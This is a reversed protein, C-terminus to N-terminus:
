KLIFIARIIDTHETNLDHSEPLEEIMLVSELYPDFLTLMQESSRFDFVEYGMQAAKLHGFRVPVEIALVANSRAVRAIEAAVKGIDYSHELSHSSYVVDFMDGPFQMAHMDMVRIEPHESFLDIGTVDSFGVAKLYAIEELNRCGISLIRDGPQPSRYSVLQDVFIRTRDRLPSDKKNLTRRLQTELYAQYQDDHGPQLRRVRLMHGQEKIWAGTRQYLHGAKRIIRNLM